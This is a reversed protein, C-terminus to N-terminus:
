RAPCPISGDFYAAPCPRM